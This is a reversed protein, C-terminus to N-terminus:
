HVRGTKFCADCLDPAVGPLRELVYARLAKLDSHSLTCFTEPRGIIQISANFGTDSASRHMTVKLHAPPLLGRMVAFAEDDVLAFTEVTM